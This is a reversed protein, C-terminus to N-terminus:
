GVLKEEKWGVKWGELRAREVGGNGEDAVFAGSSFFPGGFASGEKRGEMGDVCVCM